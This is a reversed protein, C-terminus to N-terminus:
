IVGFSPGKEFFDSNIFIDKLSDEGSGAGRLREAPPPLSVNRWQPSYLAGGVECEITSLM